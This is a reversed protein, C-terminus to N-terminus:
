PRKAVGRFNIWEFMKKLVAILAGETKCFMVRDKLLNFIPYCRIM